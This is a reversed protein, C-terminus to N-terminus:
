FLAFFFRLWVKHVQQIWSRLCLIPIVNYFIFTFFYLIAIELLSLLSPYFYFYFYFHNFGVQDM